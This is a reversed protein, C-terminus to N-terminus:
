SSRRRKQSLLHFLKLARTIIFIALVQLAISAVERLVHLTEGESSYGFYDKTFFNVVYLTTALGIWSYVFLEGQRQMKKEENLWRLMEKHVAYILVVGLYFFAIEQPPFAGRTFFQVLFLVMVVLTVAASIRFLQKSIQQEADRFNLFDKKPKTKPM